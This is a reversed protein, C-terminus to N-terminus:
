AHYMPTFIVQKSIILEMSCLGEQSALLWEAILSIGLIIAVRLNTVKNVVSWWKDRGQALHIWEMDGM